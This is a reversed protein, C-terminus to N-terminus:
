FLACNNVAIQINVSSLFSCFRCLYSNQNWNAMLSKASDRRRGHGAVGDVWVSSSRGCHGVLRRPGERWRFDISRWRLLHFSAPGVCLETELNGTQVLRVIGEVLDSM